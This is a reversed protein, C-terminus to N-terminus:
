YKGLIESKLNIKYFVLNILNVKFILLSIIPKYIIKFNSITKHSFTLFLVVYINKYVFKILSSNTHKKFSSFFMFSKTHM